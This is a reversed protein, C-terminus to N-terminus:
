DPDGLGPGLRMAALAVLLMLAAAIWFPAAISLYQFAAGSWM